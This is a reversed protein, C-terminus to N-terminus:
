LQRTYYVEIIRQGKGSPGSAWTITRFAFNNAAGSDHSYGSIMGDTLQDPEYGRGRLEIMYRPTIGNVPQGARTKTTNQWLGEEFPSPARTDASSADYLWGSGDFDNLTVLNNEIWREADRAGSEAVEIAITGDRQASSMREQMLSGQMGSVALLSLVLLMILSMLLATGRQKRSKM